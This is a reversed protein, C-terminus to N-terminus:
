DADSLEPVQYVPAASAYIHEWTYHAHVKAYGAAGFQHALASDTLLRQIARALGDVDGFPVLLGDVDAQVLDPIGGADAGIM